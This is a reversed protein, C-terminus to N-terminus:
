WGGGGGGGSSAGSDGGGSGGSDRLSAGYAVTVASVAALASAYGADATSTAEGENWSGFSDDNMWEATYGATALVPAFRKEWAEAMGLAVAYPLMEEYIAVTDEPANIRALREKEAIGIYMALGEVAARAKLGEPTLRYPFCRWFLPPMFVCSLTPLWYQWEWEMLLGLALVSLTGFFAFGLTKLAGKKRRLLPLAAILSCLFIGFFYDKLNEGDYIGMWGAVYLAAYLLVANVMVGLAPLLLGSSAGFARMRERYGDQQGHLARYLREGDNSDVAQWGKPMGNESCPLSESPTDSFLSDAIARCSKDQWGNQRRRPWAPIFTWKRGDKKMKMFGRVATWLLDACGANAEKEYLYAAFGPSIDQPPSFVPVVVPKQVRRFFFWLLVFCLLPIAGVVEMVEPGYASLRERLGPAPLTISGGQWAAQVVLAEGPELPRTTGFANAEHVTGGESREKGHLIYASSDTLKAGDPLTVIVTAEEIPFSWQSGTANYHIAYGGEESRVHGTTRFTLAFQHEGRALEKDPDGLIFSTLLDSRVTRCPVPAGDMRGEVLEVGFFRLMKGNWALTPVSRFIGHKIANHEAIVSIYETVLMSGDTQVALEISFDIIRESAYAREATCLLFFAVIAAFCKITASFYSM